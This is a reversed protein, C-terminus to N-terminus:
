ENRIKAHQSELEYLSQRILAIEQIQLQIQKEFEDRQGKIVICEAQLAEFEGKVLDLYETLRDHPVVGTSAAM